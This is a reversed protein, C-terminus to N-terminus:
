APVGEIDAPEDLARDAHVLVTPDTVAVEDMPVVMLAGDAGCVLLEGGKLVALLAVSYPKAGHWRHLVTAEIPRFM